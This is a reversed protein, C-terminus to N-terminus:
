PTEWIQIDFSAPKAFLLDDPIFVEDEVRQEFLRQAQSISEEYMSMTPSIVCIRIESDISEFFRLFPTTGVLITSEWKGSTPPSSDIHSRCSEAVAPWESFDPRVIDRLLLTPEENGDGSKRLRNIPVPVELEKKVRSKTDIIWCCNARQGLLKAAGQPGVMQQLASIDEALQRGHQRASLDVDAEDPVVLSFDERGVFAQCKLSHEGSREFYRIVLREMGNFVEYRELVGRLQRKKKRVMRPFRVARNILADFKQVSESETGEPIRMAARFIIGTAIVLSAFEVTPVVLLVCPRRGNQRLLELHTGLLFLFGIWDTDTHETSDVQEVQEKSRSTIESKNLPEEDSLCFTVAGEGNDGSVGDLSKHDGEFM